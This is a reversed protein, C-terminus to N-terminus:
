QVTGLCALKQGRPSFTSVKAYPHGSSADKPCLWCLCLTLARRVYFNIRIAGESFSRLQKFDSIHWEYASHDLNSHSNLM